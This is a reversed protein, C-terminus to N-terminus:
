PLCSPFNTIKSCYTETPNSAAGDLYCCEQINKSGWRVNKSTSEHQVSRLYLRMPIRPFYWTEMPNTHYGTDQIRLKESGKETDKLRLSLSLFIGSCIVYTCLSHHRWSKCVWCFSWLESFFCEGNHSFEDRWVVIQSSTLGRNQFRGKTVASAFPNRTFHSHCIPVPMINWSHLVDRKKWTTKQHSGINTFYVVLTLVPDFNVPVM